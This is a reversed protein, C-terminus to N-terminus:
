FSLIAKARQEFHSIDPLEGGISEDEIREQGTEERNNRRFREGAM